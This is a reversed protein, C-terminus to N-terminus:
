NLDNLPEENSILFFRVFYGRLGRWCETVRLNPKERERQQSLTSLGPQKGGDLSEGRLSRGGVCPFHSIHLLALVQFTCVDKLCPHMLLPVLPLNAVELSLDHLVARSRPAQPAPSRLAKANRLAEHPANARTVSRAARMSGELAATEPTVVQTFGSEVVSRSVKFLSKGRQAETEEDM